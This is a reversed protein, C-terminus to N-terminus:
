YTSHELATVAALALIFLLGRNTRSFLSRLLFGFRNETPCKSKQLAWAYFILGFSVIHDSDSIFWVYSILNVFLQVSTSKQCIAKWHKNLLISCLYLSFVKQAFENLFYEM